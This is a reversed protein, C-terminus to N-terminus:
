EAPDDIYVDKDSTRIPKIVTNDGNKVKTYNTEEHVVNIDNRGAQLEHHHLWFIMIIDM